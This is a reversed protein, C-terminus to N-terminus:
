RFRSATEEVRMKRNGWDFEWLMKLLLEGNVKTETQIERIAQYVITTALNEGNQQNEKNADSLALALPASHFYTGVISIISRIRCDM